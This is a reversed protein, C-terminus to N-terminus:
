SINAHKLAEILLLQTMSQGYTMPSIPINKYFDADEGVPTGYSVGNVIGNNGVQEIVGHLAKLGVSRYQEDLYGLRVGKLIGYGFAASASTEVYSTSDNLVTHWLGSEHQLDALASVQGRFTDLLYTKLGPEVPIMDIFDVVGCSYWGNGRGWQVAGYNHRGHYDWGHYFLGTKTNLLYKIHILYQRKAEEVYEPRQFYMGAKALFMVTMFLTDILIQGDNPDGTIMHQFARDHGTRILGDMIWQSWEDCVKIYEAKNTREALAMLTILPSCTNVNREPLGEALRREFWGDLYDWTKEDQMEEAYQYMGYLGVGQPWEWLEIDILGIPFEEEMGDNKIHKMAESVQNIKELLTKKDVMELM